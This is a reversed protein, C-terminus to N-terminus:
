IGRVGRMEEEIRAWAPELLSGMLWYGGERDKGLVVVVNRVMVSQRMSSAHQFVLTGPPNGRSAGVEGERVVAASFDAAQFFDARAWNTFPMLLADPACFLMAAADGGNTAESRLERLYALVQAEAAQEMLCRRNELAIPGLPGTAMGAPISTFAAVSMNQVYVGSANALQPLRFRANLAHLAAIPRPSPLSSAVARLAWATLVDGDSIFPKQGTEPHAPLDDQARRHLAHLTTKPLYITRTSVTRDWLLDTAFRFGFKAMAWGALRSPLLKYQEQKAPDTPADIATTIADNHAGLFPPVSSTRNSLVLSWSHLLAQQGMVDMLTHPWSLAVLTANNFSTIYLSLQPTDTFIYDEITSPANEAAAFARFSPPGPHISPGPTPKPLTSALPHDEINLPLTQHAYSVAPRSTTFPRPVHIELRGNPKLRLRGGVKRWDGIELLESLSSHLKDADLVDNFCLTWTVIIGRLTPTDDLMHVPYIDDTEVPPPARRAPATGLLRQIAEM